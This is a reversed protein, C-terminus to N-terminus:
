TFVIVSAMFKSCLKPYIVKFKYIDIYKKKGHLTKTYHQLIDTGTSLVDPVSQQTYYNLYINIYVKIQPYSNHTM